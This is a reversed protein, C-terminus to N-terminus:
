MCPARGCSQPSRGQQTLRGGLTMPLTWFCGNCHTLCDGVRLLLRQVAISFTSALAIMHPHRCAVSGSPSLPTLWVKAGAKTIVHSPSSQIERALTGQVAFDCIVIGNRPDECWADFLERSLGSQLMSPTALVVCPGSDDLRGGGRVETM